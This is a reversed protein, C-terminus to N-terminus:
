AWDMPQLLAITEAEPSGPEPQWNYEWAALPPMSMLISETRGDTDLGFKTGADYLLNFEVYRSRRLLQFRKESETFPADLHRRLIGTYLPAFASGVDQWFALLKQKGEKDDAKLHDFFIGGVGRMEGRHRLWFYEDCWKKFKPYHATDHQDCVQKLTQHFHAADQRDVYIPTLDIGGGFWWTIDPVEFYRVNMHTIPMKPSLPHIVLSVGTAHFFSGPPLGLRTAIKEPMPGHVHSFNVGAKEFIKGGALARSRGGGGEARIWADEQFRAQGDLLELERCIDDQLSQLFATIQSLDSM